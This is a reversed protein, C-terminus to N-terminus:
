AIPAITKKAFADLPSDRIDIANDSRRKQPEIGGILACEIKAQDIKVTRRIFRLEARVSNETDRQCGCFGNRIFEIQTEKSINTTNTRM